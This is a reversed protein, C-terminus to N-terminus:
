SNRQQNTRKDFEYEQLEKEELILSIPQQQQQQERLLSAINNLKFILHLFFSRVPFILVDNDDEDDDDNHFAVSNQRTYSLM